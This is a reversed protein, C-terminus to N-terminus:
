HLILLGSNSATIKEDGELVGDRAELQRHVQRLPKRLEPHLCLALFDFIKDQLDLGLLISVPLLQVLNLSRGSRRLIGLDFLCSPGVDLQWVRWDAGLPPQVPGSGFQISSAKSWPPPQSSRQPANSGILGSTYIRQKQVARLCSTEKLNHKWLTEINQLNQQVQAETSKHQKSFFRSTGASTWHQNQRRHPRSSNDVIFVLKLQLWLEKPQQRIFGPGQLENLESM